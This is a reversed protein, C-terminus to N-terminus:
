SKRVIDTKFLEYRENCLNISTQIENVDQAQHIWIVGEWGVKKFDMQISDEWGHM